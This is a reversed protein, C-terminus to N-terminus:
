RDLLGGFLPKGATSTRFAFVALGILSLVTLLSATGYWAGFDTTCALALMTDTVFACVIVALFGYRLLLLVLIGYILINTSTAVLPHGSSLGKIGAFVLVFAIAALWERRLIVRLLFLLLLFIVGGTLADLGHSLYQSAFKPLSVLAMLKPAASPSEGARMVIGNGAAILLDYGVGVLIGALIDRGVLPDRWGGSLARTWTIITQPWHRRVFPELAMYALWLQAGALLARAAAISFLDVEQPWAVHHAGCLWVGMSLIFAASALRFAGQKDGRGLRLNRWSLLSGAVMMLLFMSTWLIDNARQSASRAPPRERDANSWPGIIAFYVPKAHWWAAEIRIPNEPRGPFIGTWAARRDAMALPTWRPEAPKFQAPDLGAAAFLPAPDPPTLSATRDEIQPPLAEFNTLRGAQDLSLSLMGSIRSPPDELDVVGPGDFQDTKLSQPSERYWFSVPSPHGNAIQTWDLHAPLHSDLYRIYPSSYHLGWARDVPPTTYGLKQATRHAEVALADPPLELRMRAVWTQHAFCYVIAFLGIAAASLCVAAAAPRIGATAGAAAVMEPSPTEGAALAAALPDGGPLAASVALASTPRKRPDPELCRAIAREVAPDLDRVVTSVSIPPGTERMRILEVLTDADFAKRGTFIEYLVLGLAYLDSQVSVEKGSLQEPAMYAPTGSRIDANAMEAALGALGFDTIVVQGRGDIMINAPKLDRHLVGQAHAAALGACLKRAIELAKDPPLRGIRRLLSALDEGDVYEMSLFPIGDVEGIDYVRCVNPHTVQRAIRVENHFRALRGPDHAAEEPLFKLAVTQGLRIDTARYVEGMGGKGLPGIVRYREGLLAGPLFRGEDASSSVSLSASSQSAARQRPSAITATAAVLVPGSAAVGCAPCYRCDEPMETSCYRCLAM